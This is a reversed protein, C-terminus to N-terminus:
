RAAVAGAPRPAAAVAQVRRRRVHGIIDGLWDGDTSLEIVTYPFDTVTFTARWLDIRGPLPTFGIIPTLQGVSIGLVSSGSITGPNQGPVAPSRTAPIAVPDSWEGESAHVSFNVGAIYDAGPGPDLSLTVETSPSSPILIPSEIEFLWSQGLAAPAAAFAAMAVLRKKM